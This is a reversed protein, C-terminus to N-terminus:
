QIQGGDELVQLSMEHRGNDNKSAPTNYHIDYTMSIRVTAADYMPVSSM